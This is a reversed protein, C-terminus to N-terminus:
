SSEIVLMKNQTIFSLFFSLYIFHSFSFWRELALTLLKLEEFTGYVDYIDDLMSGIAIVKTMILRATLLQPEFFIGLAFFYGEM